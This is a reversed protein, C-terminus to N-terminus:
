QACGLRTWDLATWYRVGSVLADRARPKSATVACQWSGADLDLEANLVLLSCDGDQGDGPGAWEYKGRWIGVKVDSGYLHLCVQM